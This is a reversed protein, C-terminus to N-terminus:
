AWIKGNNVHSPLAQDQRTKSRFFVQEDFDPQPTGAVPSQAPAGHSWCCELLLKKLVGQEFPVVDGGSGLFCHTCFMVIDFYQFVM